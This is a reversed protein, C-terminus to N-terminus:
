RLTRADVISLNGRGFNPIAQTAPAFRTTGYVNIVLEIMFDICYSSADM